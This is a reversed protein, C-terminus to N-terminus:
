RRSYNLVFSLVTCQNPVRAQTASLSLGLLGLDAIDKGCVVIDEDRQRFICVKEM